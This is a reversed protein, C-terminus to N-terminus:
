SSRCARSRARQPRARPCTGTAASAATAPILLVGVAITLVKLRRLNEMAGAEGLLRAGRM